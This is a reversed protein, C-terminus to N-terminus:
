PTQVGDALVGACIQLARRDGDLARDCIAVQSLDGAQGAATRLSRIEGANPAAETAGDAGAVQDRLADVHADLWETWDTGYAPHNADQIAEALESALGSSVVDPHSNDVYTAIDTASNITNM